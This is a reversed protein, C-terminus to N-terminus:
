SVLIRPPGARLAGVVAAGVGEDRLRSVASAAREEPLCLLLGGSTQADALLLRLPEPIAADFHTVELARTLNRRSGAPVVGAEAVALAGPILPVDAARITASLSSAELVNRLHGLLGFGTVDTCATAEFTLGVECARDNLALMQATAARVLEDSATGKRIAQGVLGTGLAKTLVLAQGERAFRHSWVRAPDVSGVVSLGAKPESDGITHGGVIACRARGAAEQMGAMIEALVELGLKDNPFGVFSLAVEPRGGMAWVDSMANVAAIGGFARPDDVMATVVDITLVMSRAAGEPRVVAADDVPGPREDIWPHAAPTLTRLVDLLSSQALKRACGGGQVLTTLRPADTM